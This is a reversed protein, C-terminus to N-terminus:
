AADEDDAAASEVMTSRSPGERPLSLMWEGFDLGDAAAFEDDLTLQEHERPPNVVAM